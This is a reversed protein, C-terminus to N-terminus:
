RLRVNWELHQDPADFSRPPSEIRIAPARVVLDTFAPVSTGFAFRGHRDTRGGGYITFPRERLQVVVDVDELPEGRADRLSGIFRAHIFGPASRPDPRADGPGLNGPGAPVPGPEPAPKPLPEAAPHTPIGPAGPEAVPIGFPNASTWQPALDRHAIWLLQLRAPGAGLYAFHFPEPPATGGLLV